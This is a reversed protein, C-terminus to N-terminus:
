EYIFKNKLDSNMINITNKSATYSFSKSILNGSISIRYNNSTYFPYVQHHMKSPFIIMKGEFTKDVNIHQTVINGFNNVILFSFLSNSPCNSNVCNKYNLEKELDYPISIWIVFSLDGDHTHLPSYEYKKQFNIWSDKIILNSNKINYFENYYDNTESLIFKKIDIDKDFDFRYEEELNGALTKNFNKIKEKFFTNKEFDKVKKKLNDFLDVPFEYLKLKFTNEFIIEHKNNM